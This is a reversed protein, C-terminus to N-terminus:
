NDKGYVTYVNKTLKVTKASPHQAVLVSNHPVICIEAAYRDTPSYQGVDLIMHVFNIRQQVSFVM